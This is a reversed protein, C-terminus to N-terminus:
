LNLPNLESQPDPSKTSPKPDPTSTSFSPSKSQTLPLNILKFSHPNITEEIVDDEKVKFGKFHSDVFVYANFFLLLLLVPLFYLFSVPRTM